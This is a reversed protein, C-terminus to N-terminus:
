VKEINMPLRTVTDWRTRSKLVKPRQVSFWHLGFEAVPIKDLNVFLRLMNSDPAWDLSAPAVMVIEGSPTHLLFRAQVTKEEPDDRHWWSVLQLRTELIAGKKGIRKAEEVRQELGKSALTEIIDVLSIVQNQTDVLIRECLVTWLHEAM